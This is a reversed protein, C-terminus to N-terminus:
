SSFWHIVGNVVQNVVVVRYRHLYLNQALLHGLSPKIGCIEMVVAWNQLAKYYNGHTKWYILMPTTVLALFSAQYDWSKQLKQKLINLEDIVIPPKVEVVQKLSDIKSHAEIVSNTLTVVSSDISSIYRYTMYIVGLTSTILICKSLPSMSVDSQPAIDVSPVLSVRHGLDVVGINVSPLTETQAQEYQFEYAQTSNLYQEFDEAQTGSSSAESLFFPILNSTSHTSTDLCVVGVQIDLFLIILSILQALCIILYTIFIINTSRTSGLLARYVKQKNTWYVALILLNLFLYVIKSDFHVGDTIFLSISSFIILNIISVISLFFIFKRPLFLTM